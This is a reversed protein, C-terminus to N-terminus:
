GSGKEPSKTYSNGSANQNELELEAVRWDSEPTGPLGKATRDLWIQHARWRIEDDRISDSM